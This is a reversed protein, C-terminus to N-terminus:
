RHTCPCLRHDSWRNNVVVAVCATFVLVITAIHITPIELISTSCIHVVRKCCADVRNTHLVRLRPVVHVVWLQVIAVRTTQNTEVARTEIGQCARIIPIEVIAIACPIIEIVWPIWPIPVITPAITPSPSRPIAPIAADPTPAM